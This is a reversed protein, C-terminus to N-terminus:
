AVLQRTLRFRSMAHAALVSVILVAVPYAMAWLAVGSFVKDLPRLLDVFVLHVTYIGLVLPGVFSIRPARLFPPDSLAVLGIGLGFFYTGFLYDQLMTTGWYRSLVAIECFHVLAGVCSMLVGWYFWSANPKQRQLLYGSVFFILGFFPGNRTNFTTHFGIPTDAYAKGALGVVYLIISLAILSRTMGRSLLLGSIGLCSLLGMLFWLHDKTGQQALLFPTKLAVVANWYVMKVPGFLGFELAEFFNTPLLYMVSWALFVFVIRKAMVLTPKRLSDVHDFKAAWFYGSVLFFYPVAFRAFQNLVTALDLVHGLRTFESAFPTTHIVIVAFIALVRVTDVSQIRDQSSKKVRLVGRSDPM